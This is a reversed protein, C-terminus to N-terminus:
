VNLVFDQANFSIRILGTSIKFPTMLKNFYFFCVGLVSEDHWWIAICHLCLWHVALMLIFKFKSEDM